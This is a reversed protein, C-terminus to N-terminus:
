DQRRQGGVRMWGGDLMGACEGGAEKSCVEMSLCIFRDKSPAAPRSELAYVVVSRATSTFITNPVSCMCHKLYPTPSAAYPKNVLNIAVSHSLYLPRHRLQAMM